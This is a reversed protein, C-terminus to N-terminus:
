DLYLLNVRWKNEIQKVFDRHQEVPPVSPFQSSTGCIFYEFPLLEDETVLRNM